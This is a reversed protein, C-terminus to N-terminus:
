RQLLRVEAGAQYECNLLVLKRWIQEFSIIAEFTDVRIGVIVDERQESDLFRAEQVNRSTETHLFFCWVRLRGGAVLTPGVSVRTHTYVHLACSSELFSWGSEQLFM